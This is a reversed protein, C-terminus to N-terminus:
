QSYVSQIRALGEVSAQVESQACIGFNNHRVVEENMAIKPLEAVDVVKANEDFRQRM